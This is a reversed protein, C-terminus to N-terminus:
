VIARRAKQTYVFRPLTLAVLHRYNAPRRSHEYHTITREARITPDDPKSPGCGITGVAVAVLVIFAKM